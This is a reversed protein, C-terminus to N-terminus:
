SPQASGSGIAQLTSGNPITTARENYSSFTYSASISTYFKRNRINGVVKRDINLEKSIELVGKGGELLECIEIVTEPSTM